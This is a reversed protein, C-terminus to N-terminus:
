KSMRPFDVSSGSRGSTLFRTPRQGRREKVPPQPTESRRCPGTRCGVGAKLPVCGLVHDDCSELHGVTDCRLFGRVRYLYGAQWEAAQYRSDADNRRIGAGGACSEGLECQYHRRRRVRYATTTVVHVNPLMLHPGAWKLEVTKGVKLAALARPGNFIANANELTLDGQDPPAGPDGRGPDGRGPDGRGPDGRGPDAEAQTAGAQIVGARTAVAQTAM